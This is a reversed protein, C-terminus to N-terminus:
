IYPSLEGSLDPGWAELIYMTNLRQNLARLQGLAPVDELGPKRALSSQFVFANTIILMAMRSTQLCSEQHLIGEIQKGIEPRQEIADELLKAAEDVGYELDFAAREVRSTPIAGIRLSTAIDTVSGQIWGKNPFRRIGQLVDDKVDLLIYHLDKARRIEETLDRNPIDRFRYPFRVAMAATVIEYSALRRGLHRKAQSEGSIDPSNAGDIKVEVVIPSRGKEKVTFDPRSRSDLFTQTNQPEIKWANRLIELIDVFKVTITDESQM